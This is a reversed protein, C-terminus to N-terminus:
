RAKFQLAAKPRSKTQPDGLCSGLALGSDKSPHSQCSGCRFSFHNEPAPYARSFPFRTHSRGHKPQYERKWCAENMNAIKGSEFRALSCRLRSPARGIHDRECAHLSICSLPSIRCRRTGSLFLSSAARSPEGCVVDALNAQKAEKRILGAPLFTTLDSHSTQGRLNLTHRATALRLLAFQQAANLAAPHCPPM